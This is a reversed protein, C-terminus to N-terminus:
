AQEQPQEMDTPLEMDEIPDTARTNKGAIGDVTVGLNKQVAKITNKM